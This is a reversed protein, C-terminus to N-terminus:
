ISFAFHGDFSSFYLDKEGKNNENVISLPQNSYIIAIYVVYNNTIIAMNNVFSVQLNIISLNVLPVAVPKKHRYKSLCM